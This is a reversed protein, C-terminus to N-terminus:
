SNDRRLVGAGINNKIEKNEPLKAIGLTNLQRTREKIIERDIAVRAYTLFKNGMAPNYKRMVDSM